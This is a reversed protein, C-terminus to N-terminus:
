EDDKKSTPKLGSVLGKENHELELYFKEGEESVLGIKDLLENIADTFGFMTKMQDYAESTFLNAGCKPCLANLWKEPEFEANMDSWGCDPADCKIGKIEHTIAKM